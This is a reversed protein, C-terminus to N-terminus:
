GLYPEARREYGHEIRLRMSPHVTLGDLDPRAIWAVEYV